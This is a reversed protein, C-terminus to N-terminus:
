PIRRQPVLFSDAGQEARSLVPFSNIVLLFATLLVWGTKRLFMKKM